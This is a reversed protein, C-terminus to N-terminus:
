ILCFSLRHATTVCSCGSTSSGICLVSLITARLSDPELLLFWQLCRHATFIDGSLFTIGYFIFFWYNDFLWICEFCRPCRLAGSRRFLGTSTRLYNLLLIWILHLRLSALWNSSLSRHFGWNFYSIFLLDFTLWIVHLVDRQLFIIEQLMTAWVFLGWEEVNENLLAM